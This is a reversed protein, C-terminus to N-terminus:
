LESKVYLTNKSVWKIIYKTDRYLTRCNVRLYWVKIKHNIENRDVNDKSEKCPDLVGHRKQKSLLGIKDRFDSFSSQTIM